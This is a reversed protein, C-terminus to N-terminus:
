LGRQEVELAGLRLLVEVREGDPPEDLQLLPDVPKGVVVGLEQRPAPAELLQRTAFSRVVQEEGLDLRDAGITLNAIRPLELEEARQEGSQLPHSRPRPRPVPSPA